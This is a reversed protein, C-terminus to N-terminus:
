REGEIDRRLDNTAGAPWGRRKSHEIVLELIRDRELSRGGEESQHLLDEVTLVKEAPQEAHKTGCAMLVLAFVLVSLIKM